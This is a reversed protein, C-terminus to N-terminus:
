PKIYIGLLADGYPSLPLAHMSLSKAEMDEKILASKFAFRSDFSM